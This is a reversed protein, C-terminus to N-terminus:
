PKTDEYNNPGHKFILVALPYSLFLAEVWERLFDHFISIKRFWDIKNWFVSFQDRLFIKQCM